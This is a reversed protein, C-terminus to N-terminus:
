RIEKYIYDLVARNAKNIASFDKKIYLDTVAMDRDIHNLAENIIDKGTELDNRAITAWSHRAAYFQLNATGVKAGVEKLGLNVAKNFSAFNSYMRHFRFVRKKTKDAYKEFLERIHEQVEIEIEAHDRRRDKTKTRQYIIRGNKITEANFLDASNMGILGFSLIFCDKALNYRNMKNKQRVTLDDELLIIKRIVEADVARKVATNQRPVRFKSFPSYPILIKGAEEDNYKLKAWSHIHRISGLYLSAARGNGLSAAYKQLFSVTIERIDMSQRGIFRILSNLATQYNKVGKLRSNEALFDRYVEIFDISTRETENLYAFLRDIDMGGASLSIKNLKRRYSKIIEELQDIVQKNKIKGSRTLDDKTVYVSTPLRRLKRNHTLLIKVAFTGDSKQKQVEIRFTAM